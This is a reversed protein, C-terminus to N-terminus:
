EQFDQNNIFELDSLSLLFAKLDAKDKTSLNVGGENVKKMLPDITSSPKLGISYHNIVEELTAFRGDHMYPATFALNRLSPSRFKGNDAPDGTIAGLGLDSFTADLGNNHFKNDTWLPNNNSGHCHFCDGRAEDMFVDFGNQEETTLITEGKLFKDFKSSGSIITREFQAIAKTVLTSDITSTGFAQLFLVPYESHEQLKKAVVTWNAHMEIPNTVPEFSQKELSFEKGDWTFLEDFNWALNFLPMSNRNGFSGDIGDSFPRNDTFAIKPDHCTACSQTSNGSLIKDFFLKKGLAVGEKTLPNNTPIIPAILKDAFLQPIKLNYPIPVYTEEEKSSCNMLLFFSILLIYINKM